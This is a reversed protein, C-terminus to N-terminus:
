NSENSNEMNKAMLWDKFPSLFDKCQPLLLGYEIAWSIIKPYDFNLLSQTLIDKKDTAFLEVLTTLTRYVAVDYSESFNWNKNIKTSKSYLSLIEKAHREWSYNKSILTAQESLIKLVGNQNIQIMKTAIDDISHSNVLLGSDGVVEPPAHNNMTISPIGCAMAELLPMGFGEHISPLVIADSGQMLSILEDDSVFGLSIINDYEKIKKSISPLVKGVLILKQPIQKEKAKKFADLMRFLNKRAFNIESVHIFYPKDKLKFKELIMKRTQFKDISPKFNDHNVGHPIITMKDKPIKLYQNMENLESKTVVHVASIKEIHKPWRSIEKKILPEHIKWLSKDFFVEEGYIVEDIGSPGLIINKNSLMKDSPFAYGGMNPIHICDYHQNIDGIGLTDKRLATITFTQKKNMLKGLEHFMNHNIRMLSSAHINWDIVVGIRM